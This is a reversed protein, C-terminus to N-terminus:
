LIIGQASMQDRQNEYMKKQKLTQMARKKISMQAAGTVKKMQEKYRRLEGDLKAIKEDLRAISSDIRGTADSLSPPPPLEKKKGFIRNM